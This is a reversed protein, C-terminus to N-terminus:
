EFEGFYIGFVLGAERKTVKVGAARMRKIAEDRTLAPNASKLQVLREIAEKGPADIRGFVRHNGLAVLAYRLLGDERVLAEDKARLAAAAEAYSAKLAAHDAKLEGYDVKLGDYDEKLAQYDAELADKEAALAQKEERLAALERALGRIRELNESNERGAQDVDRRLLSLQNSVHEPNQSQIYGTPNQVIKVLRAAFEREDIYQGAVRVFLNEVRLRFDYELHDTYFLQMGSPMYPVLNFGDFLFSKPIVIINIRDAEFVIKLSDVAVLKLSYLSEILESLTDAQRATLERVTGLTVVRQGADRIVQYSLGREEYKRLVAYGRDELPGAFALIATAHLVVVLFGVMRGM